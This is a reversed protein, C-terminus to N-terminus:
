QIYISNSLVAGKKISSLVWRIHTKMPKNGYIKKGEEPEFVQTDGRYIRACKVSSIFEVFTKKKMNQNESIKVKEYKM